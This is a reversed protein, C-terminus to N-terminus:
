QPSDAPMVASRVECVLLRPTLSRMLMSSLSIGVANHGIGQAFAASLRLILREPCDTM